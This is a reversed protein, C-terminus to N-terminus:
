KHHFKDKYNKLNQLAQHFSERKKNLSVITPISMCSVTSENDKPHKKSQHNFISQRIEKEYNEKIDELIEWIHNFVLEIYASAENHSPIYGKHVVNNRFQKWTKTKTKSVEQLTPKITDISPPINGNKEIFYTFLYAGFQRESQNSVNKWVKDFTDVDINHKLCIINLVFEYFRELATAISTIAERPYGDLLAMCGFEFLIEFKQEQIITVTTHGKSCTSFILGDNNMEVLQFETTPRGIEQFCRM